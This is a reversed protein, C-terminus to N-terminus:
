RRRPDPKAALTALWARYDTPLGHEAAGEVLLAKYWDYPTPDDTFHEAHYTTAQIAAGDADWLRVQAHRYGREFADLASLQDTSVRYVVGWVRSGEARECCAKGSGDRGRKRFSLAHEALCAIADVEVAGVREVLRAYKLNSGYAFYRPM